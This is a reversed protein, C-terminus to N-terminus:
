CYMVRTRDVNALWESASCLNRELVPDARILHKNFVSFSHNRTPFVKLALIELPIELLLM